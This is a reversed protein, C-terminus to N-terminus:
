AFEPQQSMFLLMAPVAFMTTVRYAAIDDLCRKPDFNRHLVVHGGKQWIVLSNVNLGGIHFLPAVVLSVDSELVDYAHLVNVNNWWINGHTLMAGKPRGTTGSTFMILAVEDEDIAACERLPEHAAILDAVSPWQEAPQDASFFRRCPLQPRITDILPRHPADALLTHVGANNIIYSLEPGSLRYNLPVFVAGLRAAAFLAEVFSPQNFGIFGVRDGHCVGNARLGSALRDIRQQLEAYTLTVGEFTLANRRPTRLARQYLWNGLGIDPTM